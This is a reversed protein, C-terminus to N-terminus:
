WGGRFFKILIRQGQWNEPGTLTGGTDQLSFPLLRDGPRVAAPQNPLIAIVLLFFFLGSLVMGPVLAALSEWALGKGYRLPLLTEYFGIFLGASMMAVHGVPYRPIKEKPIAALYSVWALIIMGLGIWAIPIPTM